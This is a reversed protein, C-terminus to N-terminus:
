EILRGWMEGGFFIYLGVKTIRPGSCIGECHCTASPPSSSHEVQRKRGPIFPIPDGTNHCHSPSVSQAGRRGGRQADPTETGILAPQPSPWALRESEARRPTSLGQHHHLSAVFSTTSPLSLPLSLPFPLSLFLYLTIHGMEPMLITYKDM